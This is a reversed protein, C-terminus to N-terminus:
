LYLNLLVLLEQKVPPSSLSRYQLSIKAPSLVNNRL